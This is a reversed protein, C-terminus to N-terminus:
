KDSKRHTSTFKDRRKFKIQVLVAGAAAILMGISEKMTIAEGLFIWALIAIQILMTGNIISSEMATLTRLTLNWLTFAFATNIVALWLLYLLNSFSIAPLGQTSIGTILLLIGGIGMSVVTITVPSLNANRNVDRGIVASGANALVGIGMIILGLSQDASLVVPYFYVIVGVLFSISGIWQLITPRESLIFIGMVAVVIPTFNLLLSVTVAPLLSLGFFQAGQTFTYFTLGLLTLKLWDSKQLQKIELKTEKRFALPLLAAFAITYRLGAFTLPPIEDLGIKIIVFSTSWLFTVLLALGIATLNSLHKNKM